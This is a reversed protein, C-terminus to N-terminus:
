AHKNEKIKPYDIIVWHSQLLSEQTHYMTGGGPCEFMLDEKNLPTSVRLKYIIKTSSKDGLESQLVCGAILKNNKKDENCRNM